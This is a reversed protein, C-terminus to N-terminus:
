AQFHDQPIRSRRHQLLYLWPGVVAAVILIGVAFKALAALSIAPTRKTEAPSLPDSHVSASSADSIGELGTARHERGRWRDWLRMAWLAILTMGQFALIVPGKTLGALGIALSWTIVTVWSARGTEYVHLLCLQAIVIWLLLVGDTLANRAAWAIILGSTGLVITTWLAHEAGVTRWIVVALVILTLLMAVVTPLRAAFANDGLVAMTAAQCWYIFVPKATRIHDLLRPVVWDGSQLMQRSTQAYRPEDRDWLQVRANGILYIGAILAIVLALLWKGSRETM